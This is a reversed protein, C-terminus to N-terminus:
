FFKFIKGLNNWYYKLFIEWFIIVFTTFFYTPTAQTIMNAGVQLKHNIRRQVVKNVSDENLLWM